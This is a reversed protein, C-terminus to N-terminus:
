LQVQLLRPPKMSFKKAFFMAQCVLAFKALDEGVLDWEVIIKYFTASDPREGREFRSLLDQICAKLSADIPELNYDESFRKDVFSSDCDPVYDLDYLLDELIKNEPHKKVGSFAERWEGSKNEGSVGIKSCRKHWKTKTAQFAEESNSRLVARDIQEKARKIGFNSLLENM